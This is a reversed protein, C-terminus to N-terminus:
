PTEFQRNPDLPCTFGSLDAIQRAALPTLSYSAISGASLDPASQPKIFLRTLVYVLPFLCKFDVRLPLLEERSARYLDRQGIARTLEVITDRRRGRVAAASLLAMLLMHTRVEMPVGEESVVPQGISVRVLIDALNVGSFFANMPEVLRPNADIFLPVQRGEQFIYDLSLAGHWKLEKGLQEVYHRVAPRRVSAKSIDGGGLGSAVQRYAHSAVLKGRDFVAQIREVVGEAAEQVVFEQDGDLLGQSALESIASKLEENTHVRWVATSATSYNAKLYFPFHNESELEQRTRIM